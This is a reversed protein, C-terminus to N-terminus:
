VGGGDEIAGSVKDKEDLEEVGIFVLYGLSDFHATRKFFYSTITGSGGGGGGPSSSGPVVHLRTLQLDVGDTVTGGSNTPPRERHWTDKHPKTKDTEPAVYKWPEKSIPDTGSGDKSSGLVYRNENTGIRNHSNLVLQNFASM